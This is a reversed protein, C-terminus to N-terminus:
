IWLRVTMFMGKVICSKFATIQTEYISGSPCQGINQSSARQHNGSWCRLLEAEDQTQVNISGCISGESDLVQFTSIQPNSSKKVLRFKSM